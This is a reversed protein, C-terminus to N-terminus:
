KMLSSLQLELGSLDKNVGGIGNLADKLHFLYLFLTVFAKIIQRKLDVAKWYQCFIGPTRFSCYREKCCCVNLVITDSFGQTAHDSIPPYQIGASLRGSLNIILFTVNLDLLFWV